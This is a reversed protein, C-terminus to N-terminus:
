CRRLLATLALLRQKYGEAKDASYDRGIEADIEDIADRYTKRCAAREADSVVVQEAVPREDVPAAPEPPQERATEGPDNDGIAAVAESECPLQSFTVSGDAATCRHIETDAKAAAAMAM